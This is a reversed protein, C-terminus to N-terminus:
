VANGRLLLNCKALIAVLTQKGNNAAAQPQVRGVDDHVGVPDPCQRRADDGEHREEQEVDPYKAAEPVHLLVEAPVLHPSRPDCVPKSLSPSCQTLAVEQEHLVVAAATENM